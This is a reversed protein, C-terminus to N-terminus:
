GARGARTAWAALRTMCAWGSPPAITFMALTDPMRGDGRRGGVARGLGPQEVQGLGQRHLPRGRHPDVRHDGPQDGGLLGVEVVAVLGGLGAHRGRHRGPPQAGASSTAPAHRNRDDPTLEHGAGGQRDVAAVLARGVQRRQGPAPHARRDMPDPRPPQLMRGAIVGASGREQRDGPETGAHDVPHRPPPDITDNGARSTTPTGDRAALTVEVTPMQGPYAAPGGPEPAVQGGLPVPQARQGATARAPATAPDSSSSTVESSANSARAGHSTRAAHPSNAAWGHSAPRSAARRSAAAPTGAPRGAPPSAGPRRLRGM